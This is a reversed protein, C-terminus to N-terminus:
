CKQARGQTAGLHCREYLARSPRPRQQEHAPARVAARQTAAGVAAGRPPVERHVFRAAAVRERPVDTAGVELEAIASLRSGCM